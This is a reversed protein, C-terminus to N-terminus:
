FMNMKYYSIFICVKLQEKANPIRFKELSLIPKKSDSDTGHFVLCKGEINSSMKWFTQFNCKEQLLEFIVFFLCM